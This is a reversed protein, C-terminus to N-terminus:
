DIITEATILEYRFQWADCAAKQIVPWLKRIMDRIEAAMEKTVVAVAELIEFMIGLAGVISALALVAGKLIMLGAVILISTVSMERLKNM